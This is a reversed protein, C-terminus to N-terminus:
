LQLTKLGTNKLEVGDEGSRRIAEGSRGGYGGSKRLVHSNCVYSPICASFALQATEPEATEHFDGTRDSSALFLIYLVYPLVPIM